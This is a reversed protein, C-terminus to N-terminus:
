KEKVNKIQQKYYASPTLGTHKKFIRNFSSKSNFGAELANGLLTNVQYKPDAIRKKVEEVRYKNIFDHFNLAISNNLVHSVAHTSVGVERSLDSLKLEPNLFPKEKEVYHILKLRIESESLGSDGFFIKKFSKSITPFIYDPNVMSSIGIFHILVSILFVVLIDLYYTYYEQFYFTITVGISILQIILFFFCLRVLWKITPQLGSDQHSRLVWLCIVAYILPHLKNMVMFLYTTNSLRFDKSELISTITTTTLESGVTLFQYAALAAFFLFPLYHLTETWKWKVDKDVLSKIYMLLIPGLVYRLSNIPFAIWPHVKYYGSLILVFQVSLISVILVLVGLIRNAQENGKKKFILILSLILGQLSAYGLLVLGLQFNSESM